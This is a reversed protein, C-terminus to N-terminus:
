PQAEKQEAAPAEPTAPPPPPPQPHTEPLEVFHGTDKAWAIAKDISDTAEHMLEEIRYQSDAIKEDKLTPLTGIAKEVTALTLDDDKYVWDAVYYLNRSGRITGFLIPDRRKHREQEDVVEELLRAPKVDKSYYMVVYNDFLMALNCQAMKAAVDNPIVEPYYRLFEIQVGREAKTIFEIAQEETIYRCMDHQALNIKAALVSLHDEVKKAMAFQCTKKFRDVLATAIGRSRLLDETTVYLEDEKVLRFTEEVSVGEESPAAKDQLWSKAARLAKRFRGVGRDTSNTDSVRGDLRLRVYRNRQWKAEKAALLDTARPQVGEGELWAPNIGFGSADAPAILENGAMASEKGKKNKEADEQLIKQFKPLDEEVFYEEFVKLMPKGNVVTVSPHKDWRMRKVKAM